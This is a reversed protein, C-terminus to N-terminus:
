HKTMTTMTTSYSLSSYNSYDLRVTALAIWNYASHCITSSHKPPLEGDVGGVDVDSAEDGDDDDYDVDHPQPQRDKRRM